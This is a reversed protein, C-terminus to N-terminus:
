FIWTESRIHALQNQMTGQFKKIRRKRQSESGGLLSGAAFLMLGTRTLQHKGLWLGFRMLKYSIEPPKKLLVLSHADITIKKKKSLLKLHPVLYPDIGVLSCAKFDTEVPDNGVVVLGLPKPKGEIPGWGELGIRGDIICLNPRIVKLVHSLREALFPHSNEKHKEPLCGWMNKCVGTFREWSHTKMNAVSIITDYHKSLIEPEESINALTVNKYKRLDYFGNAEFREWATTDHNDSEIITVNCKAMFRLLINIFAVDTSVPYRRKSCLNPKILIRGVFEVRLSQFCQDLGTYLSEDNRVTKAIATLQTLEVWNM